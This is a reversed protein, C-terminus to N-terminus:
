HRRYYLINNFHANGLFTFLLVCSGAGLQAAFGSYPDLATIGKGVTEIVRNSLLVAGLFVFFAGLFFSPM